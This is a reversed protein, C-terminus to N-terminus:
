SFGPLKVFHQKPCSKRSANQKPWPSTMKKRKQIATRERSHAPHSAHSMVKIDRQPLAPCEHPPSEASPGLGPHLDRVATDSDLWGHTPEGHSGRLKCRDACSRQERPPPSVQRLAPRWAAPPTSLLLANVPLSAGGPGARRELCGAEAPRSGRVRRGTRALGSEQRQPPPRPAARRPRIGAACAPPTASGLWGSEGPSGVGAPVQDPGWRGTRGHRKEMRGRLKITGEGVKQEELGWHSEPRPRLIQKPVKRGAPHRAEEEDELGPATAPARARGTARAASQGFRAHTEKSAPLLSSPSAKPPLLNLPPGVPSQLMPSGPFPPVKRPPMGPANGLGPLGEKGKEPPPAKRAFALTEGTAQEAKEAM